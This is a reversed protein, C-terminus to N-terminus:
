SKGQNQTQTLTKKVPPDISLAELRRLLQRLAYVGGNAHAAQFSKDALMPDTSYESLKDIEEAIIRMIVHGEETTMLRRVRDRVADTHMAFLKPHAQEYLYCLPRFLM